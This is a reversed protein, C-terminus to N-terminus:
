GGLTITTKPAQLTNPCPGVSRNQPSTATLDTRGCNVDNLLRDQNKDIVEITFEIAVTAPERTRLGLDFGVLGPVVATRYRDTLPDQGSRNEVAFTHNVYAVRPDDMMAGNMTPVVTKIINMATAFDTALEDMEDFSFTHQIRAPRTDDIGPLDYLEQIGSFNPQAKDGNITIGPVYRGFENWPDILVEVAHGEKDLNALTWTLQVRVDGPTIWPHRDFPGVKGDLAKREDATPQRVPLNVPIQTEYLTLEGDDYFPTTSKTMALSAPDLQQTNDAKSCGALLWSAVVLTAGVGSKAAARRM